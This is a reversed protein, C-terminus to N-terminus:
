GSFCSKSEWASRQVNSHPSRMLCTALLFEYEIVCTRTFSYSEVFRVVVGVVVMVGISSCKGAGVLSNKSLMNSLLVIKTSWIRKASVKLVHSEQVM